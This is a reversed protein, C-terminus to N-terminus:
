GDPRLHDRALVDRRHALVHQRLAVAAVDRALALQQLLLLFALTPHLAHAAHFDRLLREQRHQLHCAFPLLRVRLGPRASHRALPSAQRTPFRCSVASAGQSGTGAKDGCCASVASSTGAEFRSRGGINWFSRLRRMYTRWASKKPRARATPALRRQATRSTGRAMASSLRPSSTACAQIKARM